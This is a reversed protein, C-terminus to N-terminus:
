RATAAQQNTSVFTMGVEYGEEVPTERVVQAQVAFSALQPLSKLHLYALNSPLAEQVILAIGEFSLDKGRAQLLPGIQSGALIPYLDVEQPFPWRPRSRNEPASRLFNELNELVVPAIEEWQSTIRSTSMGGPQIRLVAESLHSGERPVPRVNIHIEVRPGLWRHWLTKKLPLRLVFSHPDASILRGEWEESFASVKLSFMGSLMRIPIVRELVHGPRRLCKGVETIDAAESSGTQVRLAELVFQNVSPLEEEPTSGDNLLSAAHIVQPPPQVAPIPQGAAQLAEVLDRCRPFRRTPQDDLARAVVARDVLPVFDLDPKWRGRSARPNPRPHLGTLMEIYILALAYQDCAKSSRGELLEPAAYRWNLRAPSRGGPIWVLQVLGLDALWLKNDRVLLNWPNLSLHQLEHREQIADLIAASQWLYGLLEERPIGPLGQSICDLHRDQLSRGPADTILLVDQQTRFVKTPPLAPHKLSRILGALQGATEDARVVGSLSRVIQERGDSGLVRWTENLDRGLRAIPKCGLFALWSPPSLSPGVPSVSSPDHDNTSASARKPRVLLPTDNETNTVFRSAPEGGRLSEARFSGPTPTKALPDPWSVLAEMFELCSPFRNDPDKALARAIVERDMEPLRSLDPKGLLHQMMLQQHHKGQFPPTGTLLEQYVIALSYQDSNRSVKGQFMEPSNYLPTGGPPQAHPESRTEKWSTVLGFDAVKLHKGILFLNSPKIDLHQLNYDFNLMDLAEAAEFLLPLLEMRPIGPMGAARCQALRHQLNTDALETVFILEGHLIEVRELSLLFPHRIAKIHEFAQLEQEALLSDVGNLNGKIFKIAKFLGGPATCKWVVGFSGRGLPELLQYGPIPENGVQKGGDEPTM